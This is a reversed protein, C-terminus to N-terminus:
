PNKFKSMQSLTLNLMLSTTRSPKQRSRLCLKLRQMLSGEPKRIPKRFRDKLAIYAAALGGLVFCVLLIIILNMDPELGFSLLLLVTVLWSSLATKVGVGLHGRTTRRCVLYASVASFAIFVPGSLSAITPDPFYSIFQLWFWVLSSTLLGGAFYDFIVPRREVKTM